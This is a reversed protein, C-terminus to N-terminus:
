SFLRRMISKFFSLWHFAGCSCHPSDHEVGCCGEKKSLELAKKIKGKQCDILNRHRKLLLECISLKESNGIDADIHRKRAWVCETKGPTKKRRIGVEDFESEFIPLLHAAQTPPTRSENIALAVRRLDTHNEVRWLSVGDGVNELIKENELLKADQADMADSWCKPRVLRHVFFVGKGSLESPVQLPEQVESNPSTRM